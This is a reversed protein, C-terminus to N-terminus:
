GGFDDFAIMEPEVGLSDLTKFVAQMMMPPGCLYYEIETPDEHTSLYHDHAAKHIFGTLGEWHDEPQPESLAVFYSFNPYKEALETFEEHYFMEQKSRAGYWFTIKRHTKETLLQNRIHSRMPAMGAGGGVFCMERDTDKVFFDGYPGSLIVQEGPKLNFVYSSGIGPPADPKGRPPTAIRITFKLLDKEAPASALSYARNSPETTGAELQLLNFQKWADVYRTSVKFDRFSAHYEPIDIQVYAGAKFNLIQGSDLRLDLEKIFTAVNENSVVTATYKKVNFIEEPIRIKLDQKVKLQCALRVHDRREKRSVLSLETPLIDGGGEVVVCKCTGCTGKGGCACPILIRNDLLAALLTKNGPTTIGKDEDDNIVIKRDGKVTVRSEVVLLLGVLTMIVALFVTTSFLYVM